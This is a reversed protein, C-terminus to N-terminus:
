AQSAKHDSKWRDRWLTMLNGLYGEADEVAPKGCVEWDQPRRLSATSTAVGGLMTPDSQHALTDAPAHRLVRERASVRVPPYKLDAAHHQLLAATPEM